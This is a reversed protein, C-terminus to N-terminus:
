GAGSTSHKQHIYPFSIKQRICESMCLSEEKKQCHITRRETTTCHARLQTPEKASVDPEKASECPEKCYKQKPLM